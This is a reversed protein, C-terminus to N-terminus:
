YEVDLMLVLGQSPAEHEKRHNTGQHTSARRVDGYIPPLHTSIGPPWQATKEWLQLCSKLGVRGCQPSEKPSMDRAQAELRPVASVRLHCLSCQGKGSKRSDPRQSWFLGNDYSTLNNHFYSRNMLHHLFM